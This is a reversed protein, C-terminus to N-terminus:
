CRQQPHPCGGASPVGLAQALRGAKGASVLFKERQEVILFQLLVVRFVYEHM